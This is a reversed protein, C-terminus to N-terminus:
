DKIVKAAKLTALPFTVNMKKAVGLNAYLTGKQ